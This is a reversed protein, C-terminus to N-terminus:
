IFKDHRLFFLDRFPRHSDTPLRQIGLLAKVRPHRLMLSQVIGSASVVLWYLPICAPMDIMIRVAFLTFFALLVDYSRTRLTDMKIPYIRRQSQFVRGVLNFFGFVGVAIPLIFYPDPQLLNPFWLVGAINPHFESTIINRIAFSSFIWVPVTCMKLNQIRSAQLRHEKLYKATHEEVVENSKRLIEEDTTNLQLRKGDKSPVVDIKYHASLRKLIEQSLFNTAHLRKAFLKEALIHTPSTIIRLALGSLMITGVWPLGLDHIGEFVFQAGTTLNCYQAYEFVAAISPPLQTISRVSKITSTSPLTIRGPSFRLLLMVFPVGEGWIHGSPADASRNVHDNTVSHGPSVDARAAPVNTSTGSSASLNSVIVLIPILLLSQVGLLIVAALTFIFHIPEFRYGYLSYTPIGYESLRANVVTWPNAPTHMRRDAIDLNSRRLGVSNDPQVPSRPTRVEDDDVIDGNNTIRVM